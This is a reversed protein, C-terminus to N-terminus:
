NTIFYKDLWYGCLLELVRNGTALPVSILTDGRGVHSMSSVIAVFSTSHPLGASNENEWRRQPESYLGCGIVM